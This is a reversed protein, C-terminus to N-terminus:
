ELIQGVMEARAQWVLRKAEKEGYKRVYFQRHKLKGPEVCAVAIWIAPSGPRKRNVFRYV